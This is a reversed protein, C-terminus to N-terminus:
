SGLPLNIFLATSFESYNPPTAGDYMRIYFRDNSTERSFTINPTTARIVLDPDIGPMFVFDRRRVEFGGGDPPAVGTNIEVSRGNLTTVTIGNLNPLTTPAIPVPLWADAPVTGSTKIALDAAWDNAFSVSYEVLDPYSANYTLKVARVVVQGDLSASPASLQLADGPWVDCAFDLNTGKYTGSWSACVSAAAQAMVLAANQCDTTCRAPPDIVSGIWAMTTPTAQGAQQQSATNTARGIARGVTRYSVAIQEGAVPIYGTYFLLRGTREMQCEGAHALPGIRRTYTNGNPPTSAVWGSGLSTLSISRVSGMLNVSSAAVVTCAGPLSTIAGDYLTVPMAGVGNVFEQIEFQLKAPSLNWGGGATIPGSDGSSRYIAFARLCESSHVRIRLTYQNAANISFASGAPTGQILPQVTVNGSGQQAVVQFGATCASTELGGSFFGALVGTSSAALTVGTAELLLTGGMEIQDLWSLVTQGDIGNGGSMALGLPGLALFGSKGSNGWLREDIRPENFLERIITTEATSPFFPQSSLYFQSTIGDGLFYETVYAVPEHKGCATVDNAPPRKVNSNLVLSSFTLSGHSESLSHVAAPIASLTLNGNLVRYAARAANAVQGASKSWQAGSIPAFNNVPTSLTLNQTAFNKMGAHSILTTMLAGATQGSSGPSRPMLQQDLLVEDSVAHIETRFAPGAVGLGSYEPCPNGTIYGTFYVTGDDGVIAISQNAVPAPISDGEAMSLWFKCASPENLKREVTLPHTADLASTYDQGQISIKM